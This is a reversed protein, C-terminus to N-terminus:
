SSKSTSYLHRPVPNLSIDQPLPRIQHIIAKKAFQALTSSGSDAENKLSNFLDPGHVKTVHDIGQEQSNFGIWDPCLACVTAKFLTHVELSHKICTNLSPSLKGCYRCKREEEEINAPQELSQRDLEELRTRLDMGVQTEHRFKLHHEMQDRHCFSASCLGCHFTLDTPFSSKPRQSSVMRLRKIWFVETAEEAMRGKSRKLKGKSNGHQARKVTKSQGDQPQQSVVAAPEETGKEIMPEQAESQKTEEATKFVGNPKPSPPLNKGSAVVESKVEDM